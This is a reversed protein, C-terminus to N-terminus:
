PTIRYEVYYGRGPYRYRIIAHVISSPVPRDFELGITYIGPEVGKLLWKAVGATNSFKRLAPDANVIKLGIPFYQEIIISAPPPYGIRLDLEVTTSFTSRYRGTVPEIARAPLVFVLFLGATTLLILISRGIHNLREPKPHANFQVRDSASLGLASHSSLRDRNM